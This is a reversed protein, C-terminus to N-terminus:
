SKTYVESSGGYGISSGVHGFSSDGSSSGYKLILHLMRHHAMVDAHHDDCGCSTTRNCCHLSVVSVPSDPKVYTGGQLNSGPDRTVPLLCTTWQVMSVHHSHLSIAPEGCPEGGAASEM